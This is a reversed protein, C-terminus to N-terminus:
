REFVKLTGPIKHNRKMNLDRYSMVDYINRSM